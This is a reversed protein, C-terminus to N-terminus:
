SSLAVYVLQHEETWAKGRFRDCTAGVVCDQSRVMQCNWHEVHATNTSLGLTFKGTVEEWFPRHGIRNQDFHRKDPEPGQWNVHHCCIEIAEKFEIFTFPREAFPRNKYPEGATVNVTDDVESASGSDHNDSSDKFGLEDAQEAVSVAAAVGPASTGDPTSPRDALNSGLPSKPRVHERRENRPSRYLLVAGDAESGGGAVDIKSQGPDFRKATSGAPSKLMPGSVSKTGRGDDGQRGKPSEEDDDSVDILMDSWLHKEVNDGFSMDVLIADGASQAGVM